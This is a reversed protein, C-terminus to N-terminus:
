KKLVRSFEMDKIRRGIGQKNTKEMITNERYKRVAGMRTICAGKCVTESSYM